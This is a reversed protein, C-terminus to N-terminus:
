HGAILVERAAASPLQPHIFVPQGLGAAAAFFDDYAPDDLFREGSRGYVM